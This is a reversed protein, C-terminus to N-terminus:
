CARTQERYASALTSKIGCWPLRAEALTEMSKTQKEQRRLCFVRSVSVTFGDSHFLRTAGLQELIRDEIREAGGRQTNAAVFLLKYKDVRGIRFCYPQITAAPV